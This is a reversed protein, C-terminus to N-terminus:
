EILTESHAVTRACFAAHGQHAAMNEWKHQKEYNMEVEVLPREVYEFVVADPIFHGTEVEPM